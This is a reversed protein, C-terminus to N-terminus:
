HASSKWMWAPGFLFVGIVLIDAAAFYPHWQSYAPDVDWALPEWPNVYGQPYESYIPLPWGWHIETCAQHTALWNQDPSQPNPGFRISNLLLVILLAALWLCALPLSRNHREM